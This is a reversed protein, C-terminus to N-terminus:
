SADDENEQESVPYRSDYIYINIHAAIESHQDDIGKEEDDIIHTSGSHEVSSSVDTQCIIHRM